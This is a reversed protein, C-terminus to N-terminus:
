PGLPPVNFLVPLTQLTAKTLAMARRAYLSMDGSFIQVDAPFRNRIPDRGFFTAMYEGVFATVTVDTNVSRYRRGVSKAVPSGIAVLPRRISSDRTDGTGLRLVLVHWSLFRWPRM